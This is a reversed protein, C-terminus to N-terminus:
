KNDLKSLYERNWRSKKITEQDKISLKKFITFAIQGSDFNDIEYTCRLLLNVQKISPTLTTLIHFALQYKGNNILIEAENLKDLLNINVVSKTNQNLQVLKDLYLKNKQNLESINLLKNILNPNSKKSSIAFLMLLKVVDASKTKINDQFLNYYRPLIVEKFYSLATSPADMEEFKKLELVYIARMLAETVAFPRRINLLSSVEPLSLLEQWQKLKALLEVKLFLINLFDLKNEQQLITLQKEAEERNNKELAIYFDKIIGDASQTINAVTKQRQQEVRRMKELKEWIKKTDGKFSFVRGKTLKFIDSEM